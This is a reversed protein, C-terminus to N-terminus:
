TTVFWRQIFESFTEGVLGFRGDLSDVSGFAVSKREFRFAEQGGAFDDGILVVNGLSEATVPDFVFSPEVPARYVSYRGDGITGWGVERLFQIYDAPLEPHRAVLTGREDETLLELRSEPYHALLYQRLEAHTM